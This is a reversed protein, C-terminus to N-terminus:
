HFIKHHPSLDAKAFRTGRKLLLEYYRPFPKIM